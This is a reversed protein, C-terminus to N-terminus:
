GKGFGPFWLSGPVWIVKEELCRQFFNLGDNLGDPLDSLDLWIYFTSQPINRETFEFGMEQLRGIVFDRKARFHTQLARM